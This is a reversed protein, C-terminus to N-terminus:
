DRRYVIIMNHDKIKNFSKQKAQLLVMAFDSKIKVRDFSIDGFMIYSQKALLDSSKQFDVLKSRMIESNRTEYLTYDLVEPLVKTLDEICRYYAKGCFAKLKVELQDRTM